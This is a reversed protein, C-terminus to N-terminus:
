GLIPHGPELGSHPQFAMGVRYSGALLDGHRWSCGADCVRPSNVDCSCFRFMARLIWVESEAAGPSRSPVLSLIWPQLLVSISGPSQTPPALWTPKESSSFNFSPESPHISTQHLRLNAM